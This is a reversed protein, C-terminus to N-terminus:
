KKDMGLHDSIMDNVEDQFQPLLSGDAKLPFYPRPPIKSGPHNVQKAYYSQAGVRFYLAMADKPKILHPKTRGGLQHIAAYPRDSGVTVFNNSVNVLRPSHKLAGRYYLTAPEGDTKAPWPTPRLSADTFADEAMGVARQGIAFLLSVRHRAKGLMAALQPRLTDKLIVVKM